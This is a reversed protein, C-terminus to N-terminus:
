PFVTFSGALIGCLGQICGQVPGCGFGQYLPASRDQGSWLVVYVM